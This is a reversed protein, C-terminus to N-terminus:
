GKKKAGLRSPSKGKAKNKEYRAKVAPSTGRMMDDMEKEKMMHKGMPMKGKMPMKKKKMM